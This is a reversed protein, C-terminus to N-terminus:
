LFFCYVEQLNKSSTNCFSFLVCTFANASMKLDLKIVYAKTCPYSIEFVISFMRIDNLPSFEKECEVFQKNVNLSSINM